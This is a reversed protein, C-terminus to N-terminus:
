PAGDRSMAFMAFMATWMTGLMAMLVLGSIIKARPWPRPTSSGCLQIVTLGLVGVLSAPLSWLRGEAAETGALFLWMAPSWLMVVSLWEALPGPRASLRLRYRAQRRRAPAGQQEIHIFDFALLVATVIATVWTLRGYALASGAVMGAVILVKSLWRPLRIADAPATAYLYALWTLCLSQSAAGLWPAVLRFLIPSLLTGLVGLLWLTLRTHRSV